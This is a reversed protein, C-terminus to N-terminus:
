AIERLANLIAFVHRAVNRKVRRVVAANTGNHTVDNRDKLISEIARRTLDDAQTPAVIESFAGGLQGLTMRMIREETVVRPKGKTTVFSIRTSRVGALLHARAKEEFVGAADKFGDVTAGDSIRKFSAKLLKRVLPRERALDPLGVSTSVDSAEVFVTLGGADASCVGIGKARLAALEGVSAELGQPLVLWVFTEKGRARGYHVWDQFRGNDVSSAVEIIHETTRRKCVLTPTNPYYLDGQEIFVRYGENQFHEFAADAAEVLEPALTVYSQPM